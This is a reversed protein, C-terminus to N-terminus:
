RNAAAASRRADDERWQRLKMQWYDPRHV